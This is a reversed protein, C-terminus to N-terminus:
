AAARLFIAPYHSLRDCGAIISILVQKKHPAAADKQLAANRDEMAAGSGEKPTEERSKLATRKRPRGRKKTKPGPSPVNDGDRRCQM